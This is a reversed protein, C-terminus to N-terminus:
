CRIVVEADPRPLGHDSLHHSLAVTFPAMAVIHVPSSGQLVAGGTPAILPHPQAPM